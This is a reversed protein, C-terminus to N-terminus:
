TEEKNKGKVRYSDGTISILHCHHMLRDLIATAALKSTFIKDWNSIPINTTIILSGKEYRQRIIQFFISEKEKDMQFHGLEDIIILDIKSMAKFKNELTGQIYSKYLTDMFEHATTFLVKSGSQCALVGLSIAIHSKGVGPPGILIVNEKNNIFSLTELDRIKAENIKTPFTFDFGDLTKIGEFKAAKINREANREKKGKAEIDLLRGLFERHGLSNEIAYAIEAEYNLQIDLLKFQKLLSKIHDPSTNIKHKM